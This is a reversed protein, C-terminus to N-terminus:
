KKIKAREKREADLKLDISAIIFAKDRQSLSNWESPFLGLNLVAYM